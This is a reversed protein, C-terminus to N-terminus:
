RTGGAGSRNAARAAATGFNRLNYTFTLMFYRQLVENREDEIYTETVNRGLSRNQGLLDFVNFRLEGKQDKLFKKGAGMNWLWFSQNYGASLGSYYQNNLDNQFFWGKKSLLNLQLGATHQFYSDNREKVISNTVNNFNASYSVTFDVYQSINSAIVTGITYVYNNALNSVNNILGPFRNYTFGGNINVNSKIARVPIAFTLFSRLSNYGDLNIPVTLEDSPNLVINNSIVSDKTAVYTANTIYNNSQLWFVNALILSGKATNTFTYRGSFTHTYQPDLNPNGVTVFPRDTIDAVAALQTVSPLNVSSRYMLRINSKPSFKYRFMANPLINQFTKNVQLVTPFVQDSNLNTNQYNVGASFQNDRTGTRFSIGGNQARTKNEFQNSLSTDFLSYKDSLEDFRFAQQDSKSKSFTPNYNLQLQTNKWLPETYVFNTSVQYGNNLQDIHQQDSTDFSTSGSYNTTFTQQYTDGDRKNYSTNLNVSFTRGKKPFSHRYLITNNLNNGARDSIRNNDVKSVTQGENFFRLTNRLSKADNNQFSLNPTIILQNSSDIRYELRMNFRHNTNQSNNNNNERINPITTLYYQRNTLESTTNDTNNFFYSASVTVKKGWLDSYNIGFAKTRNIGNQQGVLFNGSSGFGGFNGGGQNGSGQGRNGSGGRPGGGGGRPGGGGGGRQANSTVGLLDQQSFNQQNINNFNGVLSIRRNGKLLTANGGAQYRDDTGYGAFVRGFHGNRMNAKTVINIEKSTNGDDFGSFQAQDSLRDFVQIKDIIEAPLNRLAATADEGFLERGDITVRRVNEGQAKVQGNEVTIGPVKRALEEATADPNVKFQNANFQVTDGKQQAPPIRTTVTVGTLERSTRPVTINALVVNASDVRVSRSLTEYGVASITLRFSDRQINDFQFRGTSDTFTSYSLTTDKISRLLVSSGQLATRSEADIIRGSISFSQAQSFFFSFLALSFFLLKRYM